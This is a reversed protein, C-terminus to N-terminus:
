AVIGEVKTEKELELNEPELVNDETVLHAALRAFLTESTYPKSLYDDMGVAVCNEHDGQMANATLAIISVRPSNTEKEYLRIQRTAEFGDMIPMQCDMLIVDFNGQKYMDLAEQGNTAVEFDLGLKSLTEKGVYQNVRSDDVLLINGTLEHTEPTVVTLKEKVACDNYENQVTAIADYLLAQRVPKNLALNYHGKTNVDSDLVMSSLLIIKLKAFAADQRIEAAVEEGTINPMQMDLLLIDFAKGEENAEKLRALGEEYNTVTVSDIHQIKLYNDLILCNTENDDITLIRLKDLCFLDTEDHSLIEFPLEFWFTSGEGLTSILGIEGGMMEVLSKSIALGLGTGGYERSTSTDAQTFAQFLMKQKDLPIGVGTDRVEFRFISEEESRDITSVDISVEGQTTFKIANSVLNSMVQQLRLMDGKVLTSIEPPIYCLLEINKEHALKSLLDSTDEITKRLDFNIAEIHLKGSEIKSIDLIDNIVNLLMNASGHATDIYGKAKDSLPMDSLLDLMGLVGNMPTRIEHSMNALFDSKAQAMREADKSTQHLNMKVYENAIAVGILSGLYRLTSQRTEHKSPHSDTYIFLVGLVKTDHLLPVIYYGQSTMGETETDHEIHNFCTDVIDIERTSLARICLSHMLQLCKQNQKITKDSEGHVVYLELKKTRNSMLFVGLKNQRQMGLSKSLVHLVQEMRAKLSQQEQLIQAVRARILVDNKDNINQQELNKLQTIDTRIAIYQYPKGADDMFPVITTDVWFSSGDQAINKVANRWIDGQEVTAWMAAWFSHPHEGSNLMRHNKGILDEKSYQSAGVLRDNAHTIIGQADTASYIVHHDVAYRFHEYEKAIKKSTIQLHINECYKKNVRVLSELQFFVYLLVLVALTTHFNSEEMMLLRIEFPAVVILMFLVAIGLHYALTTMALTIIAGVLFVQYITYFNDKESVAPFLHWFMLAWALAVLISSLAFRQLFLRHNLQETEIKFYLLINVSHLIIGGFILLVWLINNRQNNSDGYFFLYYALFSLAISGLISPIFGQYLAKVQKKQFAGGFGSMIKIIKNDM